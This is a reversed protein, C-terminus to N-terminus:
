KGQGAPLDRFISEGHTVLAGDEFYQVSGVGRFCKLVDLVTHVQRMIDRPLEGGFQDRAIANAGFEVWPTAADIMGAWNCTIAGALPQQLAKALLKSETQLPVSKLM